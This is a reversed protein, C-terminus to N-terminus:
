IPLIIDVKTGVNRKSTIHIKGDHEEIIKCAVTLGLGIGNKKTTYFAETIRQLNEEQVGCGNDVISVIVGDENRKNIHIQLTGGHGMAEIANKIIYLFVGKLKRHDCDIKIQDPAVDYILYLQKRNIEASMEKLANSVIEEVLYSSYTSPKCTAMVMLESIMNNIHEIEDIMHEYVKDDVYKEKQLQTFGRLSSLPNKIEHGVSAAMKGIVVLKESERKEIMVNNVTSLYQLFRNLLLYTVFLLLSYMILPMFAKKEGLVLLVSYKGMIVLFLWLLYRKSMFIPVFLIFVFEVTHGDDFAVKNHLAYWYLNLIESCMYAILYIYKVRYAQERKMMYMSCAILCAGYLFTPVQVELRILTESDGLMVSYVTEYIVWVINLVWLFLRANKKEEQFSIFNEKM